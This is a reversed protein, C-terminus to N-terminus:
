GLNAGRERLVHQLLSVDLKRPYVGHKAALAAATGAAEGIAVVTPMIRIAAQAERTTSICRGAVLLNEVKKPVLCRYPIDYSEGPPPCKKAYPNDEQGQGVPNHMDIWYSGRAIVDKFKRAEIIDQGTMVYEGIIRRTERVGIEAGSRSLYANEFGPVREKFFKALEVMQRRAEIEARTLDEVNTGDAKLVRTSNFHLEGKHTTSFYLVNERPINVIGAAKAELFLRNIEKRPPVRSVDVGAMRFVLTMPQMLGDQKRGKEYPAGAMVAVDGDGTADVFVKGSVLQRGSKNHVEVGFIENGHMIVDIVCTHLLLEVGAEQVMEDAVVKMIEPDFARTKKDYGDMRALRDIIEQFIGHVIQEEGANFPMFPNVLGATMSGGLFGYREILLTQAGSRGAAVAAALGATGGGVVVVNHQSRLNM